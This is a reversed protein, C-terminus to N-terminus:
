AAYLYMGMWWIGHKLFALNGMSYGAQIRDVRSGHEGWMEKRGSPGGVGFNLLVRAHRNGPWHARRAILVCNNLDSDSFRLGLGFGFGFTADGIWM